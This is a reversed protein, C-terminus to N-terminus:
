FLVGFYVQSVRNKAEGAEADRNINNLGYSYRTEVYASKGLFSFELGAGVVFVLDESTFSDKVDEDDAKASILFNFEPGGLIYPHIGVPIFKKKLVMPVSIYNLKTETGQFSAGRPSYLVDLEFSFLTLLNFEVAIGGTIAKRSETDEVDGSISAWNYGVKIGKRFGLQGFATSGAILISLLIVSCCIIRRKM